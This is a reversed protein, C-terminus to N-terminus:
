YIASGCLNCPKDLGIKRGVRNAYQAVRTGHGAHYGLNADLASVLM